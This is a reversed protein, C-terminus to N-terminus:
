RSMLGLLIRTVASPTGLSSSKPMALTICGSGATPNRDLVPKPGRGIVGSYALGSCIRPPAIVGALSM